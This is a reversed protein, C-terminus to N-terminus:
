EPWLSPPADVLALLADCSAVIAAYSSIDASQMSTAAAQLPNLIATVDSVALGARTLAARARDMKASNAQLDSVWKLRRRYAAGADAWFQQLRALDPSQAVAMARHAKANRNIDIQLGLLNRELQALLRNEHFASIAVPM